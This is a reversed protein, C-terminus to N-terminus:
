RVPCVHSAIWGDLEPVGVYVFRGSDVKCREHRIFLQDVGTAYILFESRAPMETTDM